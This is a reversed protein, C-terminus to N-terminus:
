VTRATRTSITPITSNRGRKTDPLIHAAHTEYFIARSTFVVPSAGQLLKKFQTLCSHITSEGVGGPMEDLGDLIFLLRRADQWRLFSAQDVRTGTREAFLKRCWDLMDPAETAPYNGLRLYVPFCCPDPENLWQKAKAYAYNSCFTTKGTGFDGLVAVNQSWDLTVQDVLTHLSGVANEHQNRAALQVYRAHTRSHRPFDRVFNEAVHRLNHEFESGTPTPASSYALVSAARELHGRVKERFDDVSEYETVLGREKLYNKLRKLRRVSASADEHLKLPVDSVRVFFMIWPAGSGEYRALARRFERETGDGFRCWAIGCYIQYDPTQGDVVEQPPDGIKSAVKIEWLFAELRVALREALGSASITKCISDVVKREEAVDDASSVFVRITRPNPQSTVAM